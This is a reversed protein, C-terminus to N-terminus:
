WPLDDTKLFKRFKEPWDPTLKDSPYYAVPIWKGGGVPRVVVAAPRTKNTGELPQGRPSCASPECYRGPDEMGSVFISSYACNKNQNLYCAQQAIFVVVDGIKWSGEYEGNGQWITHKSVFKYIIQQDNLHGPLVERVIFGLEECGDIPYLEHCYMYEEAVCEPLLNLRRCLPSSQKFDPKLLFLHQYDEATLDRMRQSELEPANQDDAYASFSLACLFLLFLFIRM